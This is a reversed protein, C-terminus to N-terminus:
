SSYSGKIISMLDFRVVRPVKSPLTHSHLILLVSMHVIPHPLSRPYDTSLRLAGSMAVRVWGLGDMLWCYRDVLKKTLFLPLKM